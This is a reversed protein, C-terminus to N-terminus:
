FDVSKVTVTGGMSGVQSRNTMETHYYYDDKDKGQDEIAFGELKGTIRTSDAYATINGTVDIRYGDLGELRTNMRRMLQNANAPAPMADLMAGCSCLVTVCVLLLSVWIARKKM